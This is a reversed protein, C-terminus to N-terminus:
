DDILGDVAQLADYINDLKSGLVFIIGPHAPSAQFLIPRGDDVENRGMVTKIEFLSRRHVAGAMCPLYRMADHIMLPARTEAQLAEADIRPDAGPSGRDIRAGHPTYRVHSLTSLGAAPFPMLSFFPGDMVTIGIGRLPEPPEVLAMETLEHKLPSAPPLCGPIAYLGSYTCNFVLDAVLAAGADTELVIAGGEAPAMKTIRTGLRLVVPSAALRTALLERLRVADFVSEEVEFVTEIRDADFLRTIEPPALKIPAGIKDCFHVFQRASVRSLNRAIAYFARFPNLIAPAWDALFRDYNLRSRHATNYSRPYHYGGHVRAQNNFSARTLLQAEREILSVSQGRGALHLAIAAGFFGGGIVACRRPPTM